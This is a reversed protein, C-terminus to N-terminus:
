CIQSTVGSLGDAYAGRTQPGQGMTTLPCHRGKPSKHFHFQFSVAVLSTDQAPCARGRGSRLSPDSQILVPYTTYSGHSRHTGHVAVDRRPVPAEPLSPCGAGLGWKRSKDSEM